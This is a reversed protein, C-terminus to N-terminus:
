CIALPGPGPDYLVAPSMNFLYLAAYRTPAPPRLSKM